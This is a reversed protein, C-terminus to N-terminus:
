VRFGLAGGSDVKIPLSSEPYRSAFFRMLEAYM